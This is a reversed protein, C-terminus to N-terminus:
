SFENNKIGACNIYKILNNSFTLQNEDEHFCYKYKM